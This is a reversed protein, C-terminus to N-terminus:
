PRGGEREKKLADIEKQIAALRREVNDEETGAAGIPEDAAAALREQEALLAQIRKDIAATDLKPTTKQPAPQPPAPPMKFSVNVPGTAQFIHGKGTSTVSVRDKAKQRQALARKAAQVLPSDGPQVVESQILQPKPPADQASLGAATAALVVVLTLRMLTRVATAHSVM